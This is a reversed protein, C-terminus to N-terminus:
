SVLAIEMNKISNTKTWGGVTIIKNKPLVAVLTRYKRTPMHGIVKWSSSRSDLMYITNAQGGHKDIGGVAILEDGVTACTSYALPLNPVKLWPLKKGYSGSKPRETSQILSSLSCAYVANSSADAGLLYLNGRSISASLLYHPRPLNFAMSWEQTHVSMVEISSLTDQMSEGGAVILSDQTRVVAACSRATFMPPLVELWKKEDVLSLLVNTHKNDEKRMGGVATLRSNIIVLGFSYHPSETLVNWEDEDADYEHVFTSFTSAFYCRSGEAVATGRDMVGPAMKPPQWNFTFTNESWTRALPKPSEAMKSPMERTLLQQRLHEIERRKEDLEARLEAIHKYVRDNSRIKERKCLEQDTVETLTRERKELLQELYTHRDYLELKETDHRAKLQYLHTKWKSNIGLLERKLKENEERLLQLAACVAAHNDSVSQLEKELEEVKREKARLQDAFSGDNSTSYLSAEPMFYVPSVTKAMECAQRYRPTKKIVALQQCLEKASPRDSEMFELCQKALPLLPHSPDILDIDAKRREYESYPVQVFGVEFRGDKVLQMSMGPNPFKRTMMQIALVGASFCDLKDSYKPPTLLAEPPMYPPCGPCKTLNISLFGSEAWRSMGFDTVKAKSGAVLLINNSSLDRHTIGQSHLYALALAIDHSLNVELHFSLPGPSRELFKTLSEDLLEMLLVPNGSEPDPSTGLCQVINPHKLKSLIECEQVFRKSVDCSDFFISHLLKAACPLEDCTATFVAGYSGKGLCNEHHITVTEFSLQHTM